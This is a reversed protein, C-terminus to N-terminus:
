GTESPSFFFFFFFTLSRRTPAAIAGVIALTWYIWQYDVRYTVFGFILPGTPVGLTVMITWVGMCKAWDRRFFTETVIASGMASPPSIFFSVLARCAAMSAYSRSKACGVNCVLSCIVSLLFIPRRGYRSTLPKWFLPAGSMIAIQLSTLYSAQQMSIGLKGSIDKYAPIIGSATFTAM